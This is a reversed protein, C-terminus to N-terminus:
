KKVVKNYSAIINFVKSGQVLRDSPIHLNRILGIGIAMIINTESIYQEPINGFVHKAISNDVRFIYRFNTQLGNIMIIGKFYFIQAKELSEFTAPLSAFPKIVYLDRSIVEGDDSILFHVYDGESIIKVKGLFYEGDLNGSVQEPEIFKMQTNSPSNDQPIQAYSEFTVFSFVLVVCAYVLTKM